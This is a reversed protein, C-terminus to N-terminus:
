GDKSRLQDLTAILHDLEDPALAGIFEETSAATPGDLAALTDLGEDTIVCYVRRRDRDCRLRKALGKAELKDLLRTIAPSREIMREAVELTPLGQPGAGRLIRLANYQEMSLGSGKLTQAIRWRLEDATKLIVLAGEEGRSRFPRNQKIQRRLTGEKQGV